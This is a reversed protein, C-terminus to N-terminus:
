ILIIKQNIKHGSSKSKRSINSFRKNDDIKESQIQKKVENM